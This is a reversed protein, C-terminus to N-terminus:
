FERANSTGNKPSKIIKCTSDLLLLGGVLSTLRAVFNADFYNGTGTIRM